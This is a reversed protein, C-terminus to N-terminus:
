LKTGYKKRMLYFSGKRVLTKLLKYNASQKQILIYDYLSNIMQKIINGLQMIQNSGGKM